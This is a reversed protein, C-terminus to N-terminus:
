DTIVDGWTVDFWEGYAGTPAEMMIIVAGDDGVYSTIDGAEPDPDSGGENERLWVWSGAGANDWVYLSVPDYSYSRARFRAYAHNFSGINSFKLVIYSYDRQAPEEYRYCYYGQWGGDGYLKEREEVSLVHVNYPDPYEYSWLNKVHIGSPQSDSCGARADGVEYEGGFATGAVATLVAFVIVTKM